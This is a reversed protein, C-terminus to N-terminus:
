GVDRIGLIGLQQSQGADDDVPRFIDSWGPVSSERAVPGDDDVRNDVGVNRGQRRSWFRLHEVLDFTGQGLFGLRLQDTPLQLSLSDWHLSFRLTTEIM